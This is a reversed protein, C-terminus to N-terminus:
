TTSVNAAQGKFYQIATVLGFGIKRTYPSAVSARLGGLLRNSRDRAAVGIFWPPLDIIRM